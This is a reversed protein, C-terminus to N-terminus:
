HKVALPPSPMSVLGKVGLCASWPLPEGVDSADSDGAPHASVFRPGM